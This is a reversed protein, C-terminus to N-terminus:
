QIIEKRTREKKREIREEKKREEDNRQAMSYRWNKIWTDTQSIEINVYENM